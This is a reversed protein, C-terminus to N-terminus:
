FTSGQQCQLHLIGGSSPLIFNVGLPCLIGRGQRVRGSLLYEWFTRMAM